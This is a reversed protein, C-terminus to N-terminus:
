PSTPSLACTAELVQYKGVNIKKGQVQIADNILFAANECDDYSNRKGDPQDTVVAHFDASTDAPDSSADANYLELHVDYLPPNSSAVVPTSPPTYDLNTEWVRFCCMVSLMAGLISIVMTIRPLHKTPIQM